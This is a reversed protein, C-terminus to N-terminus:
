RVTVRARKVRSRNGALDRALLEVRYTGARLRRLRLSRSAARGVRVTRTRVTKGGRKVRVTVRGPENLRFRVRVGGAIRGAHVRSLEPRQEDTIELVSPAPQDNPFPQESLPPPPPPPPNGVTVRGTMESHLGCVFDYTGQATFTYTAPPDGAHRFPTEISWNPSTSRVNHSAVTNFHWTVTDGVNVKVSSPSWSNDNIGTPGDTAQVDANAALAPPAAALAGITAAVAIRGKM